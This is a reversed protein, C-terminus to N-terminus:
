DLSRRSFIIRKMKNNQGQVFGELNDTPDIEKSGTLQSGEVQASSFQSFMGLLIIILLQTFKKM